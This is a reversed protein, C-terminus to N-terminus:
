VLSAASAAKADSLITYNGVLYNRIDFETILSSNAVLNQQDVYYGKYLEQMKPDFKDTLFQEYDALLGAEHNSVEQMKLDVGERLSESHFKHMFRWQDDQNKTRM